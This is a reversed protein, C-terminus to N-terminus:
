RSGESLSSAESMPPESIGLLTWRGAEQQAKELVYFAVPGRTGAATTPIMKLLGSHLGRPGVHSFHCIAILNEPTTRALVPDGGSGEARYHAIDIRGWFTDPPVQCGPVRCRNGDLARVDAKVVRKARVIALAKKHRRQAVSGRKRGDVQARAGAVKKSRYVKPIAASTYYDTLAM